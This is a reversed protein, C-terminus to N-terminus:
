DKWSPEAGLVAIRHHHRWTGIAILALIPYSWLSVADMYAPPVIGPAVFRTMHVVVTAGQLGAIWIPWFRTSRLSLWTFAAFTLVDVVFIGSEIHRFRSPYATAVMVTLATGVLAIGGGVKEPGSGRAFAFGSALLLLLVFLSHRIM